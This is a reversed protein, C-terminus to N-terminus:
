VTNCPLIQNKLEKKLAEWSDIKGRGADDVDQLWTRWWLKAHKTLYMSTITINEQDSVQAVKSYKEM